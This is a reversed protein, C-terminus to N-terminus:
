FKKGVFVSGGLSLNMLDVQATVNLPLEIETGLTLHLTALSASDDIGSRLVARDFKGNAYLVGFGLYPKIRVYDKSIVMGLEVDTGQYQNGFAHIRTFGLFTAASLWGEKEQFFTYKLLGGVSSIPNADSSPFASLILETDWFLGKSLFLRPSPAFGPVSGTADGLANLNKTPVMTVEFGFKIGPFSDYCEASRMLRSSAAFGVVETVRDLDSVGLQGPLSAGIASLSLGLLFLGTLLRGM